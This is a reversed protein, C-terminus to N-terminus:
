PKYDPDIEFIHGLLCSSGFFLSSKKTTTLRDFDILTVPVQIPLPILKQTELFFSFDIQEKGVNSPKLQNLPRFIISHLCFFIIANRLYQIRSIKSCQILKRM